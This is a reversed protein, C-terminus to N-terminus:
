KPWRRYGPRQLFGAMKYFPLGDVTSLLDIRVGPLEAAVSDVLARGIGQRREDPAVALETVYAVVEGDSLVRIFGLVAGHAVAVFAYSRALAIPSPIANDQWGCTRLLEVVQTYQGAYAQVSILIAHTAKV